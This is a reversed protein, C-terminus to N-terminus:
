RHAAIARLLKRAPAGLGNTEPTVGAHGVKIEDAVKVAQAKLPRYDAAQATPRKAIAVLLDDFPRGKAEETVDVGEHALKVADAVKVAAVKLPRYDVKPKPPPAVYGWQGVDDALQEDPDYAFGLSGWTEHPWINVQRLVARPHWSPSWALTQWAKAAVGRQLAATVVRLGGYIGVRSQGLVTSAGSLCALVAPLHASQVDFDCAFYVFPDHPGGIARIHAQAARAAELGAQYSGLMWTASAEYVFGVGIGERRLQAAEAHTLDKWLGPQGVYRMVTHVAERKLAATHSECSGACDIARRVQTETDDAM